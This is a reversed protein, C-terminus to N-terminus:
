TGDTGRRADGPQLRARMRRIKAVSDEDAPLSPDGLAELAQKHTRGQARYADFKKLIDEGRQDRHAQVLPNSGGPMTRFGLAEILVIDIREQASLGGSSLGYREVKGDAHHVVKPPEAKRGKSKENVSYPAEPWAVAIGMITSAASLLYAEVWAPYPVPGGATLRQARIQVLADWVHVPNRDSLYRDRLDGFQLVAEQAELEKRLGDEVLIHRKRGKERATHRAKSRKSKVGGTPLEAKAM